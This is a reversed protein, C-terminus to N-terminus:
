DRLDQLAMGGLGEWVIGGILSWTNLYLFRHHVNKNIGGHFTVTESDRPVYMPLLGNSEPSLGFSLPVTYYHM